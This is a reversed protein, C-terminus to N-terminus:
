RNTFLTIPSPLPTLQAFLECREVIVSTYSLISLVASAKHLICISWFNHLIKKISNKIDVKMLAMPWKQATHVVSCSCRLVPLVKM